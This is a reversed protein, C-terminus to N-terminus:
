NEEVESSVPLNAYDNPDYAGEPTKPQDEEEDDDTEEEEDSEEEEEEEEEDPSQRTEPNLRAKSSFLWVLNLSSHNQISVLLPFVLPVTETRLNSWFEEIKLINM